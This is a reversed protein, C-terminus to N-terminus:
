YNFKMNFNNVTSASNVYVYYAVPTGDLGTVEVEQRGFTGTVDFNNPDIISRLAGHSKPYAFVMRENNCTFSRTKNGKGEVTKSMAAIEEGTFTTKDEAAKGHYYPYVFNFSGTNASYTKSAADTIKVTLQKNVSPVAVSVPFNFTGGNQVEAGEKVGLQNSGDLVEVKTIKESKKGVVAKVNTITQDNGKEYTGGNPTGSVSLTPAVYPYLLKTLVENVPMNNFTTGAAIGGLSNVTAMENTYVTNEDYQTKKAESVFQKEETEDIDDASHRHDADAKSELATELAEIRSDLADTIVRIETKVAEDAEAFEARIAIKLAELRSEISGGEGLQAEIQTIKELITNDASQLNTIDVGIQKLRLLLQKVQM